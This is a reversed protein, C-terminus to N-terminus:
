FAYTQSESHVTKKIFINYSLIHVMDFIIKPDLRKKLSIFVNIFLSPPAIKQTWVLNNLEKPFNADEFRNRYYSVYIQHAYGTGGLLRQFSLWPLIDFSSM